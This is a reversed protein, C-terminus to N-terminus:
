QHLPADAASATAASAPRGNGAEDVLHNSREPRFGGRHSHMKPELAMEM